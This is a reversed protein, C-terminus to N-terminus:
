DKCEYTYFQRPYEPGMSGDQNVDELQRLPEQEQSHLKDQYGQLESLHRDTTEKAFEKSQDLVKKRLDTEMKAYAVREDSDVKYKRSDLQKKASDLEGTIM